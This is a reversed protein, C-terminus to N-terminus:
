LAPEPQNTRLFIKIREADVNTILSDTVAISDIFHRTYSVRDIHYYFVAGCDESAFYPTSTYSFTVTDTALPAISLSSVVNFYFSSRDASSRFPLYVMSVSEKSTVLLSDNPAGVGGVELSDVTVARVGLSDSDIYFGALPLSNQNETCGSTNCSWLVMGLAVAVASTILYKIM